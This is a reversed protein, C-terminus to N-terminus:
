TRGKKERPGNKEAEEMLMWEGAQGESKWKCLGRLANLQIQLEKDM